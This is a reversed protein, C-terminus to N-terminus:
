ENHKNTSRIILCGFADVREKKFEFPLVEPLTSTREEYETIREALQVRERKMEEYRTLAAQYQAENTIPNM